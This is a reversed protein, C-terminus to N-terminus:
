LEQYSDFEPRTLLQELETEIRLLARESAVIQQALERSFEGIGLGCSQDIIKQWKPKAHGAIAQWMGAPSALWERRAAHQALEPCEWSLQQRLRNIIPTMASNHFQIQLYYDRLRRAIEDRPDLFMGPMNWREVGYCALAVADTKDTKDPLKWSERYGAVERHGVWRVERGSREIQEAWLKSYHGGTPEMVAADFPMALFEDIAEGLNQKPKPFKHVKCSRIFQKMQRDPSRDLICVTVSGRSVDVGAIAKNM